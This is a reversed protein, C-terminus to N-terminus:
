PEFAGGISSDAIVYEETLSDGLDENQRLEHYAAVSACVIVGLSVLAVRRLFRGLAVFDGRERARARALVRTDFGFPMENPQADQATAAARLLRDLASDKM